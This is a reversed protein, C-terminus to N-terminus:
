HVTNVKIFRYHMRVGEIRYAVVKSQFVNVLCSAYFNLVSWQM